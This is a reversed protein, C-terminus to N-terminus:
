RKKRSFSKRHIRAIALASALHLMGRLAFGEGMDAVKDGEAAGEFVLHAGIDASAAAEPVDAVLGLLLAVGLALSESGHHRAIEEM